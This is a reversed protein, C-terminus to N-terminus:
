EKMPTHEYQFGYGAGEIVRKAEALFRLMGATPELMGKISIVPRRGKSDPYATLIEGSGIFALYANVKGQLMLLHDRETEWDLHDCITLIVDNAEKSLGIFDVVKTQEVSM